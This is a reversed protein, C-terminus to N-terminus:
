KSHWQLRESCNRLLIQGHLTAVRSLLVLDSYSNTAALTLFFAASLQKM